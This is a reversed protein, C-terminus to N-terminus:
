RAARPLRLGPARAPEIPEGRPRLVLPWRAVVVPQGTALRLTDPHVLHPAMLGLPRVVVVPRAALPYRAQWDAVKELLIPYGSPQLTLDTRRREVRQLYLLAMLERWECVVLASEPLAQAASDVFRRPEDYRSMGPFLRREPIDDEEMVRSRLPGFWDRVGMERLLATDCRAEEWALPARVAIEKQAFERCLDVLDQERETLSLDM